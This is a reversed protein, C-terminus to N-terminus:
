DLESIVKAKKKPKFKVMFAIIGWVVYLLLVGYFWGGESSTLDILWDLAFVGALAYIFMMGYRGVYMWVMAKKMSYEAVGLPVMLASDPLPSLGFLIIIGPIAKQHQLVLDHWRNESDPNNQSMVREAGRGILYDVLDGITNALTGFAVLLLILGWAPLGYLSIWASSFLTIPLPYPIPFPVLAGLFTLVMTFGVAIWFNVTGLAEKDFWNGIEFISGVDPFIASLVAIITIIIFLVILFLNIKFHSKEPESM